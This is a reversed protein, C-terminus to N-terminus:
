PCPIALVETRSEYGMGVRDDVQPPAAELFHEISVDLPYVSAGRLITPPFAAGAGGYQVLRMQYCRAPDSTVFVGGPKGALAPALEGIPKGDIEIPVAGCPGSILHNKGATLAIKGATARADPRALDVWVDIAPPVTPPKDVGVVVTGQGAMRREEDPIVDSTLPLRETGCLGAVVLTLGGLAPVAARPVQLTASAVKEGGSWPELGLTRHVDGIAVELGVMRPAGQSGPDHITISYDVTASPEDRGCGSTLGVLTLGVALSRGFPRPFVASSM